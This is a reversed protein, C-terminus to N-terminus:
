RGVSQVVSRRRMTGARRMAWATSWCLTRAIPHSIKDINEVVFDVTEDDFELLTYTLDEDNLLVIEAVDAGVLEPIETREGTIDVEVQKFRTVQGNNLGYLRVSVRPSRLTDRSQQVTFH